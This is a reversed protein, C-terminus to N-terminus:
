LLRFIESLVEDKGLRTESSFPIIMVDTNEFYSRYMQAVTDELAKKSLKDAKTAVVLFPIEKALLARQFVLFNLTSEPALKLM